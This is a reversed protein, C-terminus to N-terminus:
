KPHSAQSLTAACSLFEVESDQNKELAATVLAETKRLKNRSAGVEFLEEIVEDALTTIKGQIEGWMDNQLPLFYWAHIKLLVNKTIGPSSSASAVHARV